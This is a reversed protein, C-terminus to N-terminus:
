KAKKTLQKSKKDKKLQNKKDKTRKVFFALIVRLVLIAGLAYYGIHVVNELVWKSSAVIGIEEFMVLESEASVFTTNGVVYIFGVFSLVYVAIALYDLFYFRGKTKGSAVRVFGFIANVFLLLLTMSFGGVFAWYAVHMIGFEGGIANIFEVRLPSIETLIKVEAGGYTLAYVLADIIHMGRCVNGGAYESVFTFTNMVFPLAIGALGLILIIFSLIRARFFNKPKESNEANEEKKEEIQSIEINKDEAISDVVITGQSDSVTEQVIPETQVNEQNQVPADTLNTPPTMNQQMQQYMADSGPAGPMMGPYMMGQPPYPPYYYPFPYGMGYPQAQPQANQAQQNNVTALANQKIVEKLENLEKVTEDIVRQQESIKSLMETQEAAGNSLVNKLLPMISKIREVDANVGIPAIENSVLASGCFPCFKFDGDIEKKCIKCVNM